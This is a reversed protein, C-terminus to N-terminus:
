LPLRNEFLCVHQLPGIKGTLDSFTWFVHQMKVFTDRVHILHIFDICMYWICIYITSIYIYINYIYIIM